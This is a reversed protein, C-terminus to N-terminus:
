RRSAALEDFSLQARAVKGRSFFYDAFPQAGQFFLVLEQREV